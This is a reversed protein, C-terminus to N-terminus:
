PADPSHAPGPILAEGFGDLTPLKATSLLRVVRRVLWSMCVHPIPLVWKRPHPVHAESLNLLKGLTACSALPLALSSALDMHGFGAHKAPDM